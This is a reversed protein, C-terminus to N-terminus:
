FVKGRADGQSSICHGDVRMIHLEIRYTEVLFLTWYPEVTRRFRRPQELSCAIGDQFWSHELDKNVLLAVVVFTTWVVMAAAAPSAHM